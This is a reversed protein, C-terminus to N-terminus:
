LVMDSLRISDFCLIYSPFKLFLWLIKHNAAINQGKPPCLFLIGHLNMYAM